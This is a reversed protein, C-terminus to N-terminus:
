QIMNMDFRLIFNITLNLNKPNVRPHTCNASIEYYINKNKLIKLYNNNNIM